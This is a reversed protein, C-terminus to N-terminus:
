AVVHSIAEATDDGSDTDATAADVRALATLTSGPTAGVTATVAVDVSGGDALDGLACVVVRPAAPPPAACTGASPDAAVFTTGEPLLLSLEVDASRDPGDNSVVLGYSLEDGAGVPEPTADLTVGLDASVLTAVFIDLSENTDTGVLDDAASYYVVRSSDPSFSPQRSSGDASGSDAANRSVLTTTQAALDRVYVDSTRNGDQPGFRGSISEFVIKTGDPSFIPFAGTSLEASDTNDANATVLTTTGSVLDRVYLDPCQRLVPPAPPHWSAICHPNDTPGLDDALSSFAVQTGDDSIASRTSGGNGSDTGAANASVLTPVGTALDYLYVDDTGNTDTPGLDSATSDVLLHESDAGFGAVFSTANGTDTGAANASVLTTTGTTLDTVYVDWTGNTDTGGLDSAFSHFAVKTGDPSLQPDGSNGNAPGTGAANTSLLTTTGATVDRVFVDETENTDDPVFNGSASEFVVTRADATIGGIEADFGDDREAVDPTITTVAGTTLDRLYIDEGREPTDGDPAGIDTAMSQFVVKTGDESFFPRYSPGNGGGTGAANASILTVEGTALDRLYLDSRGNGDDPGLDTAASEFVVKTGDPTFTPQWSYDNATDVGAADLSVVQNEWPQEPGCGTLGGVLLVATAGALATRRRM